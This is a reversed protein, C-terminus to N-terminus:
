RESQSNGQVANPGNISILNRRPSGSPTGRLVLDITSQAEALEQRDRVMKETIRDREPNHHGV